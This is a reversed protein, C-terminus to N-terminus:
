LKRHISIKSLRGKSSNRKRNISKQDIQILYFVQAFIFANSYATPFSALNGGATKCKESAEDWSIRTGKEGFQYCNDQYELWGKSCHPKQPEAPPPTAKMRACVYGYEHACNVDSWYGMRKYFKTCQQSGQQDNPQGEDWQTYDVVSGDSWHYIGSNDERLGIFYNETTSGM